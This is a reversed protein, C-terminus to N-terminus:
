KRSMVENIRWIDRHFFPCIITRKEFLQTSNAYPPFFGDWSAAVLDLYV